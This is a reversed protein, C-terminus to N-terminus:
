TTFFNIALIKSDVKWFSNLGVRPTEKKQESSGFVSVEQIRCDACLAEELDYSVGQGELGIPLLM